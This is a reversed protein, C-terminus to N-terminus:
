CSEVNDTTVRIHEISFYPKLPFYGRQMTYPILYILVFHPIHSLELFQLYSYALNFNNTLVFDIIVVFIITIRVRQQLVKM